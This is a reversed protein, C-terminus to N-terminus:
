AVCPCRETVHAVSVQVRLLTLLSSLGRSSSHATIFSPFYPNPHIEYRTCGFFFGSITWSIIAQLRVRSPRVFSCSQYRFSTDHSVLLYLDYSVARCFFDQSTLFSMPLFIDFIIRYKIPFCLNFVFYM